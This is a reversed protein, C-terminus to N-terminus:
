LQIVAPIYPGVQTKQAFSLGKESWTSMLALVLMPASWFEQRVVLAVKASPSVTM